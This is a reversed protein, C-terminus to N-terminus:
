CSLVVKVRFVNNTTDREIVHRDPDVEGELWYTGGCLGTVDLSINLHQGKNSILTLGRTIGYHYAGDTGLTSTHIVNSSVGNLDDDYFGQDTVVWPQRQGERVVNCAGWGNGAGCSSDYTRLRLVLWSAVEFTGTRTKVISGSFPHLHVPASPIEHPWVANTHYRVVQQPGSGDDAFQLDFDGAGVNPTGVSVVLCNAYTRSPAVGDDYVCNSALEWDNLATPDVIFDPLMEHAVTDPYLLFSEPACIGPMTPATVDFPVGDDGSYPMSTYANCADAYDHNRFFVGQRWSSYGNASIAVREIGSPVFLQNFTRGHTDTAYPNLYYYGLPGSQGYNWTNASLQTPTSIPDWVTDHQVPEFTVTAGGIDLNTTIDRVEGYTCGATGAALVAVAGTWGNVSKM